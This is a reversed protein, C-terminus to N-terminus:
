ESAVQVRDVHNEIAALIGGFAQRGARHLASVGLERIVELQAETSPPETQAVAAELIEKVAEVLGESVTEWVVVSDVLSKMTALGCGDAYDAEVVKYGEDLRERVANADM